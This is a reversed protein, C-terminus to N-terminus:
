NNMLQVNPVPIGHTPRRNIYMCVHLDMCPSFTLEMLTWVSVSLFHMHNTNHSQLIIASNNFRWPQLEPRFSLMLM